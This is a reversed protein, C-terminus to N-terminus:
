GGLQALLADLSAQDLGAEPFDSPTFGGADADRCHAILLRLARGYAEALRRVRDADLSPGHFFGVRLWGEAAGAEISLRHTRRACPSRGHVAQEDAARMLAPSDGEDAGGAMQGLYNFAVSPSPLAALAEAAPGGMWRLVGFGIGHRPVARLREKVERLAQGPADARASPLLLPHQSTFWGVTRSLDVGEFLDERGHGELDVLLGGDGEAETWAISLAALLADNAQTGYAAPVDQLLARTEEADLQVFVHRTAGETDEADPPDPALAPADAPVASIWYAAEAQAQPSAAHAALRVAWERFSTTKPPLSVAEGRVAQRLAAELDEGLVAWSVADVALHHVALFLRQPRHAGCEILVARAAPGAHLDLSGQARDIAADLEAAFHEDPVISLDITDFAAEGPADYVVAPEGDEGAGLRARLADHHRALAAWARRVADAEVRADFALVASMNWRDPEDFDSALFWRQVPTLPATGTVPGQEAAAAGETGAVAALEAVTHLEFVQRATLRIGERAARAIVRISLISDGGIEYFDDNVGIRDVKLVERWIRALAEEV